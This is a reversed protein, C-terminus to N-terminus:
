MFGKSSATSRVVVRNPDVCKKNFFSQRADSCQCPGDKTYRRCHFEGIVNKILSFFQANQWLVVTYHFLFCNKKLRLFTIKCLFMFPHNAIMLLILAVSTRINLAFNKQFHGFLVDDPDSSLHHM